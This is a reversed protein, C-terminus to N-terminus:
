TCPQNALRSGVHEFTDTFAERQEINFLTVANQLRMVLGVTATKSCRMAASSPPLPAIHVADPILTYNVTNM